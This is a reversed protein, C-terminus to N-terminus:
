VHARGIEMIADECNPCPDFAGHAMYGYTFYNVGIRLSYNQTFDVKYEFGASYTYMPVFPTQFNGGVSLHGWGYGLQGDPAIYYRNRPHANLANESAYNGFLFQVHHIVKKKTAATESDGAIATWACCILALTLITRSKM